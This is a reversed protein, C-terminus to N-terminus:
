PGFHFVEAAGNNSTDKAEIQGAFYVSGWSQWATDQHLKNTVRLSFFSVGQCRCPTELCEDVMIKNLFSEVTFNLFRLPAKRWVM